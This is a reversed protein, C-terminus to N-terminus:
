VPKRLPIFCKFAPKPHPGCHPIPTRIVGSAHNVRGPFERLSLFQSPHPEAGTSEPYLLEPVATGRM